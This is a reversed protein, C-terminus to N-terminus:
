SQADAAPTNADDHRASVASPQVRGGQPLGPGVEALVNSSALIAPIERLDEPAGAETETLDFRQPGGGALPRKRGCSSCFGEGQLFSRGCPCSTLVHEAAAPPPEVEPRKQRCVSFAFTRTKMSPRAVSAFRHHHSAQAIAAIIDWVVAFAM